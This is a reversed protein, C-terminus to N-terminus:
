PSDAHHLLLCAESKVAVFLAYVCVCVCIYIYVLMISNKMLTDLSPLPLFLHGSQFKM